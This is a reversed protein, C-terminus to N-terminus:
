DGVSASSGFRLSRKVLTQLEPEWTRRGALRARQADWARQVAGLTMRTPAVTKGDLFKVRHIERGPASQTVWEPDAEDVCFTSFAPHLQGTAPDYEVFPVHIPEEDTGIRDANKKTTRWKHRRKMMTQRYQILVKHIKPPKKNSAPRTPLIKRQTHLREHLRERKPWLVALTALEAFRQLPEAEGAAVLRQFAAEYPHDIARGDAETRGGHTTGFNSWPVLELALRGYRRWVEPWLLAVRGRRTRCTSALARLNRVYQRLRPLLATHIHSTVLNQAVTLDQGFYEVPNEAHTPTWIWAVTPAPADLTRCVSATPQGAERVFVDNNLKETREHARRPSRPLLRPYSQLAEFLDNLPLVIVQTSYGGHWSRGIEETWTGDKQRYRKVEQIKVRYKATHGTAMTQGLVEPTHLRDEAAAVGEVVSLVDLEKLWHATAPSPRLPGGALWAGAPRVPLAAAPVALSGDVLLWVATLCLEPPLTALTATTAPDPVRLVSTRTRKM